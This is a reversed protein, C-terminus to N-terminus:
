KEEEDPIPQFGSPMAPAPAGGGFARKAMAVKADIVDQPDDKEILYAGGISQMAELGRAAPNARHVAGLIEANWAQRPLEKERYTDTSKLSARPDTIGLPGRTSQLPAALENLRDAGGANKGPAAWGPIAGTGGGAGLTRMAAERAQEPTMTGKSDTYIKGALEAIKAPTVGSGGTTAAPSFKKFVADQKASEERLKGIMVQANAQFIPSQYKAATEQVQMQVGQLLEQRAAARARDNDGFLRIKDALISQETRLGDKSNDIAKQQADIDRDVNGKIIEAAMDPSHTLAAGFAGLGQAIALAIRGGIGKSKVYHDPDIKKSAIDQASRQLQAQHQEIAAQEQEHKANDIATQEQYQRGGEHLADATESAQSSQARGLAETGAMQEQQGQALPARLEPALTDTFHAPVTTPGQPRPAPAAQMEASGPPAGGLARVRAMDPADVPNPRALAPDMAPSVPAPPPAHAGLPARDAPAQDQAQQSQVFAMAQARQEASMSAPDPSGGLAQALLARDQPSYGGTGNSVHGGRPVYLAEQQQHLAQAYADAQEPTRFIGLHEGTKRYHDIAERESVIKGDVVTPVLVEGQDTGFSMSRVTSVSGDQNKVVPRHLLDINGPVVPQATAQALASRDEPSYGNSM